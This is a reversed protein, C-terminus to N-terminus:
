MLLPVRMRWIQGVLGYCQQFPFPTQYDFANVEATQQPAQYMDLRLTATEAM